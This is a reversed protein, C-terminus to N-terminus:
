GIRRRHWGTFLLLAFGVELFTLGSLGLLSTAAGTNGLAPPASTMPVPTPTIVPLPNPEPTPAPISSGRSPLDECAKGDDNDPGVSGDLGNPDSPDRDYEAQADEQFKFDSCNLLDQGGTPRAVALALLGLGVVVILRRM